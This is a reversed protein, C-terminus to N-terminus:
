GGHTVQVGKPRGTSGSTYVVYALQGAGVTVGPTGSPMGALGAVVLPDDLVVTRLRGVPLEDLIDSTGVLVTARSDTLMFGLREVPYEPDLPLYAGGARWVGLMAVVMDVGRPLCLAVVSEAGVGVGRLYHALRDARALLGGYTLSVDGSVVAVADPMSLARAAILEHVGGVEPLSADTGNWEELVRRREDATLVPLRSLERGTDEAVANLLTVLHGAMREVTVADFLATSYEFEGALGAESDSFILRLDFKAVVSGDTDADAGTSPAASDYNFLAQFLPTRSRDRDTVLAEVLQEFPVDQHAYA